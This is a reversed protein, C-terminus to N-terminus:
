SQLSMPSLHIAPPLGFSPTLVVAFSAKLQFELFSETAAPSAVLLLTAFTLPEGRGGM